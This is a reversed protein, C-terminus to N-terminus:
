ENDKVLELYLKGDESKTKDLNDEIIDLLIRTLLTQMENEKEDPLEVGRLRDPVYLIDTEFTIKQTGSDDNISFKGYSLIIEDFPECPKLLKVCWKKLDNQDLVVQYYDKINKIHKM